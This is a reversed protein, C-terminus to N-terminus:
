YFMVLLPLQRRWLPAQLEGVKVIPLTHAVADPMPETQM